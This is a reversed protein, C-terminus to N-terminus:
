VLFEDSPDLSVCLVPAQHGLYCRQKKTEVNIVKIDFDSFLQVTVLNNLYSRPSANEPVLKAFVFALVSAMLMEIINIVITGNVGPRCQAYFRSFM